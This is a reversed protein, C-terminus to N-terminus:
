ECIDVEETLNVAQYFLFDEANTYLKNNRLSIAKFETCYKAWDMSHSLIVTIDKIKSIEYMWKSCNDGCASGDLIDDTFLYLMLTKVGTSLDDPPILGLVPSDILRGSLVESKDIDKIMAKVLDNDFWEPQVTYKFHTDIYIVMDPYKEKMRSWYGFDIYLM